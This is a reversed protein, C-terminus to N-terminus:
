FLINRIKPRANRSEIREKQISSAIDPKDKVSEGNKNNGM